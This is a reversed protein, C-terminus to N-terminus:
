LARLHFGCTKIRFWLCRLSYSQRWLTVWGCLKAHKSCKCNKKLQVSNFNVSLTQLWVQTKRKQLFFSTKVALFSLALTGYILLWKHGLWFVTFSDRMLFLTRMAPVKKGMKEYIGHFGTQSHLWQITLVVWYDLSSNELLLPTPNPMSVCVCVCLECSHKQVNLLVNQTHVSVCLVINKM